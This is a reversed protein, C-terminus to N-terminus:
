HNCPHLLDKIYQRLIFFMRPVCHLVYHLILLLMKMQSTFTGNRCIIQLSTTRPRCRKQLITRNYTDLALLPLSILLIATSRSPFAPFTVIDGWPFLDGACTANPPVVIPALLTQALLNCGTVVVMHALPTSASTSLLIVGCTCPTFTMVSPAFTLVLMLALQYPICYCCEVVVM